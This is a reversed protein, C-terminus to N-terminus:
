AARGLARRPRKCLCAESLALRHKGSPEGEGTVPPAAYVRLSGAVSCERVGGGPFCACAAPGTCELWVCVCVRWVGREPVTKVLASVDETTHIRLQFHLVFAEAFCGARRRVTSGLGRGARDREAGAGYKLLCMRIGVQQAVWLRVLAECRVFRCSAACGFCDGGEQRGVPLNFRGPRPM